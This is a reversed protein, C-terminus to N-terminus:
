CDEPLNRFVIDSRDSKNFVSYPNIYHSDLIAM